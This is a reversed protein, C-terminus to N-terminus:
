VFCCSGPPSLRGSFPFLVQAAKRGPSGILDIYFFQVPFVPFPVPPDREPTLFIGNFGGMSDLVMFASETRDDRDPQLM